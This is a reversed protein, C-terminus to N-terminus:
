WKVKRFPKLYVKVSDPLQTEYSYSVGQSRGSVGTQLMNFQVWKAIAVKISSPFTVQEGDVFDDNCYEKVVEEMLPIMAALYEDHKDTKIGNLAKVETIEM